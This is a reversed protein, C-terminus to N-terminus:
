WSALHRRDKGDCVAAEVGGARRANVGRDIARRVHWSMAVLVSVRMPDNRRANSAMSAQNDRVARDRIPGTHEDHHTCQRPRHETRQIQIRQQAPMRM